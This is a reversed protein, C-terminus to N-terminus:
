AALALTARLAIPAGVFVDVGVAVAANVDVTICFCPIVFSSESSSPGCSSVFVISSLSNLSSIAAGAV